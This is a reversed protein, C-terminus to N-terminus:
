TGGDGGAALVAAEYVPDRGFVELEASLLEGPSASPEAPAPVPAGDVAVAALGDGARRTLRVDRRLRSRLWGALLLADARPGVVTLREARRVAPWLGALGARWSLSRAYAIDSVAVRDFLGALRAYGGPLRPWEGSDVVLRDVVGVLEDLPSSGWPPEGRWRCFAPLDSVLLPRVLSAPHEAATGRLRLVIVEYLVERAGGDVPTSRLSVHATVGGAGREPVLFITRSPHREALAAFTRRAAALWRPPAWVVHTLTSTRLDPLGDEQERQRLRGLEREIDAVVGM